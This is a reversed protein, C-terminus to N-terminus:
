VDYFICLCEFVWGEVTTELNELEPYIKGNEGEARPEWNNENLIYQLGMKKASELSLCTYEVFTM